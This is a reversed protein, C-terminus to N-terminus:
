IFYFSRVVHRYFDHEEISSSFSNIFEKNNYEEILVDEIDKKTITNNKLQFKYKNEIDKKYKPNIALKKKYDELAYTVNEHVNLMTNNFNDHIKDILSHLGKM